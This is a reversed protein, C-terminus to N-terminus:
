KVVSILIEYVMILLILIVCKGKENKGKIMLNFRIHNAM